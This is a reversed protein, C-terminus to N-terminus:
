RSGGGGGGSASSGGVSASSSGGSGDSSMKQAMSQDLNLWESKIAILSQADDMSLTCFSSIIGKFDEVADLFDTFGSIDTKEVEISCEIDNVTNVASTYNDAEEQLEEPSIILDAM